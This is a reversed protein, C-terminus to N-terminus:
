RLHYMLIKSNYSSSKNEFKTKIINEISPAQNQLTESEQATENNSIITTEEEDDLVFISNPSESKQLHAMQPALSASSANQNLVAYTNSSFLFIGLSFLPILSIM